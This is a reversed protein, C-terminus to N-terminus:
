WQHKGSEVLNVRRVINQRRQQEKKQDICCWNATAPAIKRPRAVAPGGRVGGSLGVENTGGHNAKLIPVLSWANKSKKANTM